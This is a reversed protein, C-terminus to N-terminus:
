VRGQQAQPIINKHNRDASVARANHMAPFAAAKLVEQNKIKKKLSEGPCICGGEGKGQQESEEAPATGQSVCGTRQGALTPM